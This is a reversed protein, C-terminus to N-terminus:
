FCSTRRGVIENLKIKAHETLNGPLRAGHVTAGPLSGRSDEPLGRARQEGRRMGCSSDQRQDIQVHGVPRRHLLRVPTQWELRRIRLRGEAAVGVSVGHAGPNEQVYLYLWVWNLYM